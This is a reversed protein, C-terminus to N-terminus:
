LNGTYFGNRCLNLIQLKDSDCLYDFGNICKYSGKFIDISVKVDMNGHRVSGGVKDPTLKNLLNSWEDKSLGRINLKYMM